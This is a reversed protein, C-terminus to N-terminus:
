ESMWTMMDNAQHPCSSQCHHIVSDVMDPVTSCTNHLDIPATHTASSHTSRRFFKLTKTYIMIMMRIM